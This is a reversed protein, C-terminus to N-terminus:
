LFYLKSLHVIWFLYLLKCYFCPSWVDCRFAAACFMIILASCLSIMYQSVIVCHLWSPYYTAPTLPYFIRSIVRVTYRCSIILLMLWVVIGATGSETFHKNHSCSFDCHAMTQVIKSWIGFYLLSLFVHSICSLWFPTALLRDHNALWKVQWFLVSTIVSYNLPWTTFAKSAKGSCSMESRREYNGWYCQCTGLIYILWQVKNYVISRYQIAMLYPPYM